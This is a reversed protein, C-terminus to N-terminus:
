EEKVVVLVSVKGSLVVVFVSIELKVSGSLVAVSVEKIVIGAEVVVFVSTELKVKGSLVVVSVEKTVRGADVVVSVSTDLKVNGSLVVVSVEKIVRGADVVVSSILMVSVTVEEFVTVCDVVEVTVDQGEGWTMHLPIHAVRAVSGILQPEQPFVTSDGECENM